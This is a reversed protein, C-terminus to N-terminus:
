ENECVIAHNEGDDDAGVVDPWEEDPQRDEGETLVEDVQQETEHDWDEIKIDVDQGTQAKYITAALITDAFCRRKIWEQFKRYGPHPRQVGPGGQEFLDVAKWFMDENAYEV